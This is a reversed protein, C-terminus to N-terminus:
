RIEMELKHFQELLTTAKKLATKKSHLVWQATPIPVSWWWKKKSYMTLVWQAPVSGKHQEILLKKM